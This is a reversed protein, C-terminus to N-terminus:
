IVEILVDDFWVMDSTAVSGFCSLYILTGAATFVEDFYTWSTGATIYAIDSASVNGIWASANVGDTRAWGTIRYNLGSTLVIQAAAGVSDTAICEICLTRVGFANPRNEITKTLVGGTAAIWDTVGVSEMDGDKLLDSPFTYSSATDVGFSYNHLLRIEADTLVSNFVDIEKTTGSLPEGGGSTNGVLLDDTDTDDVIVTGSATEIFDGNVYLRPEAGDVCSVAVSYINSGDVASFAQGNFSFTVNGGTYTASLYYNLGKEFLTDTGSGTFDYDGNIHVTVSDSRLDTDDDVTLVSNTDTFLLGDLWTILSPLITASTNSYDVIYPDGYNDFHCVLVAIEQNILHAVFPNVHTQRWLKKLQSWELHNKELTTLEGTSLVLSHLNGTYSGSTTLLTKVTDDNVQQIVPIGSPYSTTKAISDTHLTPQTPWGSVYDDVGDFVYHNGTQTPYGSSSGDGKTLDNLNLTKTWIHDTQDSVSDCRYVGISNDLLGSLSDAYFISHEGSSIESEFLRARQITGAFGLGGISLLKGAGITGTAATSQTDSDDDLYLTHDGSILDVVYTVVHEVGDAYDLDITCEVGLTSGDSHNARVGTADVYIRWGQLSASIPDQTGFLVGSSAASASFRVVASFTDTLAQQNYTIYSLGDLTVSNTYTPSGVIAGGIQKTRYSSVFNDAWVCGRMLEAASAYARGQNYSLFSRDVTILQGSSMIMSGIGLDSNFRFLENIGSAGQVMTGTGLTATYYELSRISGGSMDM